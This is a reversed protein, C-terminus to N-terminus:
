QMTLHLSLFAKFHGTCHWDTNSAVCGSPRFQHVSRTIIKCINQSKRLKQIHMRINWAYM